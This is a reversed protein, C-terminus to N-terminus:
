ANPADVWARAEVMTSFVRTPFVESAARLYRHVLDIISPEGTVMAVRINPNTVAAGLDHAAIDDIDQQTVVMGQVDLFDNIVYRLRDFREDAHTAVVPDVLEAAIVQGFYKKVLGNGEWQVTYGM